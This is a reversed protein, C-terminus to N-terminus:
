QSCREAAGAVSAIPHDPIRGRRVMAFEARAGQEGPVRRVRVVCWGITKEAGDRRAADAEEISAPADVDEFFIVM